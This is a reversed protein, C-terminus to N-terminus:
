GVTAQIPHSGTPTGGSGGSPATGTGPSVTGSGSTPIPQFPSTGGSVAAQPLDCLLGFVGSSGQWINGEGDEFTCAANGHQDVSCNRVGHADNGTIQFGNPGTMTQLSTAPMGALQPIKGGTPVQFLGTAPYVTPNVGNCSPDLVSAGMVAFVQGNPLLTWFWGNGSAQWSSMNNKWAFVFTQTSGEWVNGEGDQYHSHVGGGTDIWAGFGHAPHGADSGGYPFALAVAQALSYGPPLVLPDGPQIIGSVFLVTEGGLLTLEVYKLQAFDTYGHTSVAVSPSTPYVVGAYNVDGPWSPDVSDNYLMQLQRAPTAYCLQIFHMHQGSEVFGQPSAWASMNATPYGEPIQFSTGNAGSGTFFAFSGGGALPVSTYVTGQGPLGPVDPIGPQDFPSVDPYNAPDYPRLTLQISGPKATRALGQAGDSGALEIPASIVEYAGAYATSLTDDITVVDGPEIQLAIAGSGAADPVFPLAQLTLKPPALYPTKDPGLAVGRQWVSVRSVQDWTCNAFDTTVSRRNRNRQIGVGTAGVALQHAHHEFQPTRDKFRSYRLGILGGPGLTTSYNSGQNFLTMQFVNGNADVAPTSQVQWPGDYNTGTNGIVIHDNAIVCHPLQTTIVPQGNVTALSAITACAPVLLDRFAGIYLNPATHVDADTVVPPDANRRSFTFVSARPRDAVISFQGARERQFARACTLIQTLCAQLTTKANFSYDGAFRPMGSAVTEGFYAASEAIAGWDFRARVATPLDDPGNVADISYEPFLKRRCLLDVFHWAPNRTFGYGVMAGTSSFIRCRMGRWLGIPNIDTWINPDSQNPIGTTGNVIQKLMIAYYAWRNYHLPQLGPPLHAWFTDVGQNGGVSNLAFGAGVKADCGPHFHLRLNGAESDFLLIGLVSDWMEILGDMEGEGLLWMGVRTYDLNPSGTNQLMNYQLKQGTIWNFGYNLAVAAGANAM